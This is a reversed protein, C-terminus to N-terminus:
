LFWVKDQVGVFEVAGIVEEGTEFKCPRIKYLLKLFLYFDSLPPPPPSAAVALFLSSCQVLACVCVCVCVCM